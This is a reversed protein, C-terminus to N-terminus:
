PKTFTVTPNNIPLYQADGDIEVVQGATFPNDSQNAWFYQWLCIQYTSEVGGDSPGIAELYDSTSEDIIWAENYGWPVNVRAYVPM